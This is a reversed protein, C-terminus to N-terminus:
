LVEEPIPIPACAPCQGEHMGCAPCPEKKQRRRADQVDHEDARALIEEAFARIDQTSGHLYIPCSGVYVSLCFDSEGLHIGITNIHREM